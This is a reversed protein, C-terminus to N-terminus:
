AEIGTCSENVHADGDGFESAEIGMSRVLTLLVQTANEGDTALHVGPTKLFGGAGGAVLIPYDRESHAAGDSTDSSALLASQGLLTTDGEVVSNLSGLLRGFQEMTYITANDIETQAAEGEHSLQHHGETLGIEEFVPGAASGSFMISFARTLDCALALAILDSMAQMREIMDGEAESPRQPAACNLVVTSSLRQEISRINSLHQDLRVKDSTGVKSRLANLDQVVSDLVSKKMETASQILGPDPATAPVDAFLRDFVSAPEYEPPNASDPGNHSLFQLTTGEGGIVREYIGVELSKFPTTTGIQAAIFQDISPGSFTSRFPANGAEQEVFPRGSLIGVTGSHHGQGSVNVDMGTVINLFSKYELLPELQPSLQWDAGAVAPNWREPVVGRGNGWFFVGFRRPLPTGQAFATGNSNLQHEFYPLGIAVPVGFAVTRLFNRRALRGPKTVHRM